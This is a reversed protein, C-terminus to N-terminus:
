LAYIEPRYRRSNQRMWQITLKLGEELKVTPKWNLLEQALASDAFLRDVESKEPRIRNSNTEILIPKGVLNAILEALDRIAIEHGSGLNFTKGIAEPTAAALLFGDVTNTVYSFDRTPTLNGLRVTNGTLCQMIITPIIARASQRPGFTNFPRVTAVPLGFSRHFAEVLKDAGIKTASYPSQGQLPHKEDMPVYCATGYVESTSTHIIREITDERASQLLNLTGEINTRVYSIPAHYSYPIGILAALHFVIDIDKIAQSVCDRDCIDGAIIEAKERIPSEDLWGCNGLANYHVMARVSAGMGVLRETLHSGIFGGAGTILVRKDNWNM